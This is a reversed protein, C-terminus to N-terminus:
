KDEMMQKFKLISDLIYSADDRKQIDLILAKEYNYELVREYPAGLNFIVIPMGMKMAEEATYCFTEPVISPIFIIDIENKEIIDPLMHKDYKGHIILNKNSKLEEVKYLEGIIHIKIQNYKYEEIYSALNKVIQSGKHPFITGLVGINVTERQKKGRINRVPRVYDVKHPSYEFKHKPIDYIKLLVEASSRSFIKIIDASDLLKKFSSRFTRIDYNKDHKNVYIKNEKICSNCINESDPIGCYENNQNMLHPSPCISYYDHLNYIIKLKKKKSIEILKDILEPVKPFHYLNNIVLKELRFTDFIINLEDFNDLRLKIKEDLMVGGIELVLDNQFLMYIELDKIITRTYENAGGGQNHDVIFATQYNDTLIKIKIVDRILKLPDLSIFYDVLNIYSPHKNVVIRLNNQMLDSIEKSRSFSGGHKHYVFLNTAILNKYGIKSARMCWDNEEGYGKGFVEDFLGIIEYVERNIAMCFGVGTPLIQTTKEININRFYKDITEVDLGLYLDNDEMFKPFSCITASNSFPTVSAVRDFYLLPFILRELWGPPVETDTNLIVFHNKSHMALRNVTKM